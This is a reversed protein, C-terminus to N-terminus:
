LLLQLAQLESVYSSIINNLEAKSADDCYKAVFRVCSYETVKCKYKSCNSWTIEEHFDIFKHVYILINRFIKDRYYEEIEDFITTINSRVTEDSNIYITIYDLYEADYSVEVLM